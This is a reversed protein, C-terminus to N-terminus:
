HDWFIYGFLLIFLHCEYHGCDCSLSRGQIRIIINILFIWKLTYATLITLIYLYTGKLLKTKCQVLTIFRQLNSFKSNKSRQEGRLFDTGCTM